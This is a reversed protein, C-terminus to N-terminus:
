ISTGGPTLEMGNVIITRPPFIAHRAWLVDEYSAVWIKVRRDMTKKKEETHKEVTKFWYKCTGHVIDVGTRNHATVYDDLGAHGLGSIIYNKEHDM